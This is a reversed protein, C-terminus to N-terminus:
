QEILAMLQKTTMPKVVHDDFGAALARARDEPRGYGTVAVLRTTLKPSRTRLAQVVEYGDLGPLGIDIFAVDPSNALVAEVGSLGDSATTVSHGRSVIIDKMTERIDDNDEIVMVRVVCVDDAERPAPQSYRRAAAIPAIPNAGATGTPLRVSFASGKNLGASTAIVSGKHLEVLTKVLTLGIGLGGQSRASTRDSQVFLGFVEQLMEPKIGIGNDRVCIVIDEGQREVVLDIKSGPPSYKAANNLLNALVQTLRTADGYLTVDESPLSSTFHHGWQEMLPASTQIAHEVISAITVVERHLEIKGTTIRSLDLMDDVLAVMHSVQRDLVDLARSAVVASVEPTRLLQLANVIPAMPNRLEHSLMALFEDKRRDATGLEENRLSLEGILTAGELAVVREKTMEDRLRTAEWRESAEALRAEHAHRESERLRLAQREIEQTKRYLDVFVRVKSQLIFPVIPKWLFDVAGLAYAQSIQVEDRSFATLFIIPMHRSRERERILQATQFGDLGPMQIDLLALAFDRDLLHRLAHTGSEARVINQGLPALMAELALLNASNDDAILIDVKTNIHLSPLSPGGM